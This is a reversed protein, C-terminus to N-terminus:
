SINIPHESTTSVPIQESLKTGSNSEALKTISKHLLEMDNHLHDFKSQIVHLNKNTYYLNCFLIICVLLLFLLIIALIIVVIVFLKNYSKIETEINTVSQTLNQLSLKITQLNIEITQLNNEITQIITSISTTTEVVGSQNVVVLKYPETTGVNKLNPLIFQPTAITVSDISTVVAGSTDQYSIRFPTPNKNDGFSLGTNTRKTDHLLYLENQSTDQTGFVFFDEKLFEKYYDEGSIIDFSGNSSM